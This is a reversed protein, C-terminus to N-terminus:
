LALLFKALPGMRELTERRMRSPLDMVAPAERRIFAGQVSRRPKSTTNAGHGHWVSGNYIIMSGAPGCAAALQRNAIHVVTQKHSGKSFCTAGNEKRFDDIMLIFGVMTWGLPDPLYDVHLEQAPKGSLLTRGLMTSLKFPQQITQWCADLLLPHVYISDFEAGRNVFDHVRLTTRGERSDAPDAEVMARDYAAALSSLEQTPVPGPVVCFGEDGLQSAAEAPLELGSTIASRLLEHM